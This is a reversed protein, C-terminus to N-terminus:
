SRAEALWDREWIPGAPAPLAHVRRMVEGLRRAIVLSDSRSPAADSWARGSLRTTILYPWPWGDDFLAGEAVLAPAPIEPHDLLLRQVSQEAAHCEPGSFLEGFLKAALRGVLFTPFTGVAGIEPTDWPLGHRALAEGVYPEWLEVDGLHEAYEAQSM